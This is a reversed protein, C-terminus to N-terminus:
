VFFGLGERKWVCVRAGDMTRLLTDTNDSVDGAVIIVDSEYGVNSKALAKVWAENEPYDSHVDSIAWVRVPAAM